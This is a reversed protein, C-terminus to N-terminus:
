QVYINGGGSGSTYCNGTWNVSGSAPMIFTATQTSANPQQTTAVLTTTSPNSTNSTFNVGPISFVETCNGGGAVATVTVIRGAPATITGSGNTTTSTFNFVNSGNILTPVPISVDWVAAATYGGVLYNYDGNAAITYNGRAVWLIIHGGVPFQSFFSWPISVSGNDTVNMSNEMMTANGAALANKNIYRSPLYEAIIVVGNPNNPDANWTLTTFTNSTLTVPTMAAVNTISIAAPSYITATVTPDAVVIPGTTQTTRGSSIGATSSNGTNPKPPKLTFTVNTGYLGNQPLSKDFGYQGRENPTFTHNGISVQGGGTQANGSTDYFIGGALVIDTLKPDNNSLNSEFM